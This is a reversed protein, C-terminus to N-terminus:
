AANAVLNLVKGGTWEIDIDDAQLSVAGDLDVYGVGEKNTASDNYVIAWYCDTPGSADITWGVDDGALSTTGGTQTWTQTTIAEGGSVYSTGGSVENGSYDAWEPDTDEATPATTNDIMAVKFTDNVMDHVGAGLDKLFDNFLTVTGRAM